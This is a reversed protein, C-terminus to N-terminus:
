QKGLLAEGRRESGSFFSVASIEAIRYYLFSSLFIQSKKSVLPNFLPWTDHAKIGRSQNLEFAVIPFSLSSNRFEM